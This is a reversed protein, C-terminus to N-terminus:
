LVKRFPNLNERVDLPLASPDGSAPAAFTISEVDPVNVSQVGPERRASFYYSKVLQLCARQVGDDVVEHSAFGGLYVVVIKGSTWGGGLQRVAPWSWGIPAGNNLRRITGRRPDVEYDTDVVLAPNDGETVSTVVVPKRDLVILDVAKDCPEFEITETIGEQRLPRRCYNVCTVSAHRIALTLMADKTRDGPKIGLAAKATALDVLTLDTAESTVKVSQRM